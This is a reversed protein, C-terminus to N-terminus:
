GFMSSMRMRRLKNEKRQKYFYQEIDRYSQKAQKRIIGFIGQKGVKINQKNKTCPGGYNSEQYGKEM